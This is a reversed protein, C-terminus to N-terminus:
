HVDVMITAGVPLPKEPWIHLKRGRTTFRQARRGNVAVKTVRLGALDLSFRTLSHTAVASLRARGLLLNTSIRYTLDLEYRTVRYGGNGSHPM